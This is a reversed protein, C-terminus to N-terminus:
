TPVITGEGKDQGFTFYCYIIFKNIVKGKKKNFIVNVQNKEFDTKGHRFFLVWTALFCSCFVLLLFVKRIIFSESCCEFLSTRINLQNKMPNTNPRLSLSLGFSLIWFVFYTKKPDLVYILCIFLWYIAMNILWDPTRFDCLHWRSPVDRPEQTM